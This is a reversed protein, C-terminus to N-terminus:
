CVSPTDAIHCCSSPPTLLTHRTADHSTPHPPHAAHGLSNHLPSTLPSSAYAVLEHALPSRGSGSTVGPETLPQLVSGVAAKRSLDERAKNASQEVDFKPAAADGKQPMHTLMMGRVYVCLPQVDVSKNAHLGLSVHRLVERAIGVNKLSDVGGERARLTAQYLPPVIMNINPVFQVAQAVLEFSAYSRTTKAEKLGSAAIEEVEKKEAAEGYLDALLLRVINDMCYDLEGTEITPVIKALLYHLSYGLVHLQYGKTLSGKMEAVVSGFHTPGLELVVKALTERGQQRLANNRSGLTAVVRMLFGRLEIELTRKPMLLLLKLVALAVQVRVGETKPDKLHGYLEPLLKGRVAHMVAAAKAEADKLSDMPDAPSEDDDADDVDDDDADEDDGKDKEAAADKAETASGDEAVIAAAAEKDKDDTDAAIAEEPVDVTLDFHFVDLIAVLSRILRKELHPQRKLMRTFAQLTSLYPRWPLHAALERLTHVAEDAVDIEKPAARLVLHRLMPLLYGSLTPVSFNSNSIRVRLRALARQRRPMQVHAINHFFDAEPEHPSTLTALEPQLSPMILLTAGLLRLLDLRLADRDAPLRLGRRLAPMLTRELLQHHPGGAPQAAAHRVVLSITHSASHKLAIDDLEADHICQTLIPLCIRSSASSIIAPLENFADLRNDYDREELEEQSFANLKELTAALKILVPADPGIEADAAIAPLAVLASFTACLATRSGRHRLTGFLLSFTHVHQEPNAATGILGHILRLADEKVRETRPTSKLRLYPLFLEILQSAQSAEHVYPSLQTLLRLERTAQAGGGAAALANAVNGGFKSRLRTTLAGLLADMHERLLREAAAAAEALGEATMAAAAVRAAQAASASLSTGADAANTEDADGGKSGKKKKGDNQDDGDEEDDDDDVEMDVTLSSAALDAAKALALQRRRAHDLMAEVISLVTEVVTKAVRPAALTAYVCPLVPTPSHDLLAITAPQQVLTLVTVLLGAPSQTYHTPLRKLIPTTCTFTLHTVRTLDCTAFAQLCLGFLKISWLRAERAQLLNLVAPVDSGLSAEPPLLAAEDGGGTAVGNDDITPTDYTCVCHTAYLLLHGVAGFLEDVYERLASGLQSVAEHLSRLVGLQQTPSVDALAAARARHGAMDADVGGDTTAGIAALPALLLTVLPRLESPDFACFFAFITARRQAMANKAGGRGARQTLKAYLITTLLPLVVPRHAAVMANDVRHDIAFLTLTERFSKDSILGDLQQKYRNVAPQSWRAIVELATGQISHDAHGILRTCDDYLRAAAPFTPTDDAASYLKLFGLTLNRRATRDGRFRDPARRGKSKAQGGGDDDAAGDAPTSAMILQWLAALEGARTAALNLLPAKEMADLLQTALHHAETGPAPPERENRWADDIADRLPALARGAPTTAGGVAEEEDDDHADAEGNADKDGDTQAMGDTILPVEAAQPAGLAKEVADRLHELLAAPVIAAWREALAQLLARVHHWVHAFKIRLMGFSHHLLLAAAAQPLSPLKALKILAEADFALQKSTPSSPSGEIAVMLELM